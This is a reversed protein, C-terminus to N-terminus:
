WDMAPLKLEFVLALGSSEQGQLVERCLYIMCIFDYLCSGWNATWVFGDDEMFSHYQNYKLTMLVQFHGALRKYQGFLYGMERPGVGMEETPLDQDPGLYRYLEDMFSQCFRMIYLPLIFSSSTWYAFLVQEFGLFKAISLNMSPHYRLGGRCPGLVQSFQGRFGRNVQTEGKDDVWPVRFVVMREPELLRELIHVYYSNKAIVRELSHVAEQVSQIFEIEHPDRKLVAEVISGATKSMLAECCLWSSFLMLLCFIKISTHGQVVIELVVRISGASDQTCSVVEGDSFYDGVIAPWGFSSVVNLVSTGPSGQINRLGASRPGVRTARTEVLSIALMDERLALVQDDAGAFEVKISPSEEAYCTKSGRYLVLLSGLRKRPRWRKSVARVGFIGSLSPVWLPLFAPGLSSGGLTKLCKIRFSGALSSSGGRSISKVLSGKSAGGRPLIPLILNALNVSLKGRNCSGLSAILPYLRFPDESLPSSSCVGNPGLGRELDMIGSQVSVSPRSQVAGFRPKDKSPHARAVPSSVKCLGWHDVSRASRDDSFCARVQQWRRREKLGMILVPKSIRWERGWSPRSKAKSKRRGVVLDRSQPATEM